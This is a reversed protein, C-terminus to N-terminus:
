QRPTSSSNRWLATLALSEMQSDTLPEGFLIQISDPGSELFSWITGGPRDLEVFDFRLATRYDSPVPVAGAVHNLTGTAEDWWAVNIVGDDLYDRVATSGHCDECERPKRSITHAYFPALAVFTRDGYKVAQFNAAHVKGNRNMLFIWDRFQGYAVKRDLQVETEFHCNYCSVVSQVHCASCDVTELHATHYPNEALSAHCAECTADIAGEELMSSYPNGDGMVDEKSHCMMCGMGLQRHVDSYHTAEAKQRSHCNGCVGDLSADVRAGIQPSASDHCSACGGTSGPEHCTKCSLQDYPIGTFIEFGRNSEDYWTKMGQATAHLSMSFNDAWDVTDAAVAGVAAGDSAALRGAEQPPKSGMEPVNQSAHFFPTAFAIGVPLLWVMWGRETRTSM